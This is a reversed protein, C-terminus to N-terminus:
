VEETQEATGADEAPAQTAQALEAEAEALKKAIEEAAKAAKEKDKASGKGIKEANKALAAQLRAVKAELKQLDAEEPGPKETEEAPIMAPASAPAADDGVADAAGSYILTLAWPDPLDCVDGAHFKRVGGPSANDQADFPTKIKIRM